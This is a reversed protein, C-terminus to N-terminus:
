KWEFSVIKIKGIVSETAITLEDGVNITFEEGEIQFAENKILNGKVIIKGLAKNPNDETCKVDSEVSGIVVKSVVKENSDKVLVALSDGVKINNLVSLSIDDNIDMEFTIYCTRDSILQYKDEIVVARTIITSICVIALLLVLGDVIGFKLKKNSKKIM